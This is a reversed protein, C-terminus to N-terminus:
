HKFTFQKKIYPLGNFPINYETQTIVKHHALPLTTSISTAMLASQYSQSYSSQEAM